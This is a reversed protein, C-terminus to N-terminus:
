PTCAQTMTNARTGDNGIGRLLEDFTQLPATTGGKGVAPILAWRDV